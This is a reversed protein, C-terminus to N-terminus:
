NFICKRHYPHNCGRLRVTTRKSLAQMCIIYHGADPAVLYWSDQLAQINLILRFDVRLNLDLHIGAVRFCADRWLRHLIYYPMIIGWEEDMLHLNKLLCVRGPIKQM